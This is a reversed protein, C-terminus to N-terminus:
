DLDGAPTLEPLRQAVFAVRHAREDGSPLLTAGNDRVDFCETETFGAASLASALESLAYARETHCEDFRFWTATEDSSVRQFFTLQLPSLRKVPDYSSRYLGLLDPEDIAVHTANDWLEAFGPPHACRLCLVRRARHPRSGSPFM